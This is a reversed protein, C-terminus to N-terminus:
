PVYGISELQEREEPSLDGIVPTPPAKPHSREWGVIRAQLARAVAPRRARRNTKTGNEPFGYPQLELPSSGPHPTSSRIFKWNPGYVAIKGTQQFDTEAIMFEPLAVDGDREAFLPLLSVGEMEAPMPLSLFDLLTPLLDILRVRREVLSRAPRWTPHYLILPVHLNSEYLLWGHNISYAVDPHDDLGEGHDSVIAYLTHEWGPKSSLLAVFEGIDHSVQRVARLYLENRADPFLRRFERRTLAHNPRAYEHTEMIDLQLYVPARPNREAFDAAARFVERASFVPRRSLDQAEDKPKMWSFLVHSDVYEDFGEHFNFISNLNPNATMGFTAYGNDSLIEALTTAAPPLIENEERYLGLSRPYRGTILSGVSPRTWSSPAFAYEFRVGQAALADLEPSTDLEFGYAGLKDARLTDVVLLVVNPRDATAGPPGPASEVEAEDSGCAFIAVCGLLAAGIRRARRSDM